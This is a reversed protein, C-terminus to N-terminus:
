VNNLIKLPQNKKIIISDANYDPRGKIVGNEYQLIINSFIQFSYVDLNHNSLGDKSKPYNKYFEKNYKPQMANILAKEADVSIIKESPFNRGLVDDILAENIQDKQSITRIGVADHLKLFIIAIEHTPLTGYHFPYEVSLVQQLTSHGTLRKWVSQETAKGVYHVKYKIFDDIPGEVKADIAGNLYNQIFNEPSLWAIFTEDHYYILLNRINDQPFSNPLPDPKPLAYEFHFKIEREIDHALHTQYVPIACKLVSVNKKQKIEFHIMVQNHEVLIPHFSEFTLENRQTIIYIMSKKVFSQFHEDSKILAFDYNCVPSYALELSNLMVKRSM